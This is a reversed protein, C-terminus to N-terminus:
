LALLCQYDFWMFLALFLLTIVGDAPTADRDRNAALYQETLIYTATTIM